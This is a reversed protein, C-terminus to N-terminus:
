DPMGSVTGLPDTIRVSTKMKMMEWTKLVALCINEDDMGIDSM